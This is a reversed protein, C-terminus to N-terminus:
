EHLDIVTLYCDGRNKEAIQRLKDDFHEDRIWEEGNYTERASATGDADIVCYTQDAIEDLNVLDPIWAGDVYLVHDRIGMYCLSDTEEVKGKDHCFRREVAVRELLRHRFVRGARRLEPYWNFEYKDSGEFMVKLKLKGGYRGGVQFWDWLIPPRPRPDDDERKYYDGEYYPKLANGIVDDTPFEHTYLFLCFHM